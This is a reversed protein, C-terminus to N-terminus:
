ETMKWLPRSFGLLERPFLFWIRSKTSTVRSDAAMAFNSKSGDALFAPEALAVM